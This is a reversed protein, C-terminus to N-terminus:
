AAVISAEAVEQQEAAVGYPASDVELGTSSCVLVPQDSAIHVESDS